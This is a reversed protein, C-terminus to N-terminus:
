NASLLSISPAKQHRSARSLLGTEANISKVLPRFMNESIEPVM